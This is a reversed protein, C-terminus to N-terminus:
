SWLCKHMFKIEDEVAGLQLLVGCPLPYDRIESVGGDRVCKLIVTAIAQAGLQARGAMLTPLKEEFQLRYRELIDITVPRQYELIITELSSLVAERNGSLGAQTPELDHLVWFQARSRSKQIAGVKLVLTRTNPALAFLTRAFRPYLAGDEFHNSASVPETVKTM